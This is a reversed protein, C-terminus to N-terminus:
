SPQITTTDRVEEEVEHCSMSSLNQEYESLVLCNEVQPLCTKTRATGEPILIGEPILVLAVPNM